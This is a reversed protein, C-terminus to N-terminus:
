SIVENLLEEELMSIDDDQTSSLEEEDSLDLRAESLPVVLLSDYIVGMEKNNKVISNKNDNGVILNMHKRTKDSEKHLDLGSNWCGSLVRLISWILFSAGALFMIYVAAEEFRPLINLYLYFRNNLSDPLGELRIESWLMPMVLDKFREVRSISSIDGLAMNIQFRAAVDVPLGSNPEILFYSEHKKPDPACGDVAELLDPDAKYFHPFSVAIPFGYYCETVDVLGEQLCHGNRCYCKNEPNRAGNDLADEKFTYRYAMLGNKNVSGGTRVRTDHQARSSLVPLDLNSERDPSSLNTKRFPKGSERWAFAPKSGEWQPLYHGGNYNDLQGTMRIDNEGTYVTAIDGEFDYMRDILGLKDFRIWSPMLKNGLSVLTSEYGFMFEKATMAVLPNTNTQRILINLGMRTFYSKDKVVQAISPEEREKVVHAELVSGIQTITHDHAELVRAIQLTTHDHAELVRAIHTITHDHAELVRAILLAINPLILIDDEKHGESLEGVWRLPHSPHMTLTGNTNFTVNKHELDEKYVYPGVEQVRLKEEGSLFKEKNTVNFLFVRLYLDVDPRRWMEFVEGGESFLLKWKFIFEYPNLVLILCGSTISMIGILMLLLSSTSSIEFLPRLSNGAKTAYNALARTANLEVASSPSTSTRIETPHVPPPKEHDVSMQQSISRNIARSRNGVEPRCNGIEGEGEESESHAGAPYLLHALKGHSVRYNHENSTLLDHGADIRSPYCGPISGPIELDAALLESLLGHPRKNYLRPAAVLFIPDEPSPGEFTMELSFPVVFIQVFHRKIFMVSCRSKTELNIVGYFAVLIRHDIDTTVESLSIVTTLPTQGHVDDDGGLKQGAKSPAGESTMFAKRLEDLSDNM